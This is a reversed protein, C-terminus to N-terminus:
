PQMLWFVMQSNPCAFKMKFYGRDGWRAAWSNKGLVYDPGYGIAAVAHMGTSQSTRPTYVGGRYSMFDRYVKFGMALPGERLQGKIMNFNGSHASTMGRQARGSYFM